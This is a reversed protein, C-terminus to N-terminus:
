KNLLNIRSNHICINLSKMTNKEIFKHIDNDILYKTILEFNIITDDNLPIYKNIKKFDNTINLIIKKNYIKKIENEFESLSTPNFYYDNNLNGIGIIECTLKNICVIITTIYINDNDFIKYGIFHYNNIYFFSNEKLNISIPLNNYIEFEDINELTLMKLNFLLAKLLREHSIILINNKSDILPKINSQYYNEIRFCLDQFSEESYFDILTKKNECFKQERLNTENVIKKINDHSIFELTQITRSDDSTFIYDFFINENDFLEAMAFSNNLGKQTLIKENINTFNDNCFSEGHKVIILSM